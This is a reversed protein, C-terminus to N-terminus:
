YLFVQANMVIYGGSVKHSRIKIEGQSCKVASIYAIDLIMDLEFPHKVEDLTIESYCIVQSTMKDADLTIGGRSVRNHTETIELKSLRPPRPEEKGVPLSLTTEWFHMRGRKGHGSLELKVMYRNRTHEIKAGLVSDDKANWMEDHSSLYVSDRMIKERAEGLAESTDIGEFHCKEILETRHNLARERAEGEYKECQLDCWALTHLTHEKYYSRWESAVIAANAMLIIDGDLYIEIFEYMCRLWFDRWDGDRHKSLSNEMISLQSLAEERSINEVRPLYDKHVTPLTGLLSLGAKSAIERAVSSNDKSAHRNAMSLVYLWEIPYKAKPLEGLAALIRDYDGHKVATDILILAKIDQILPELRKIDPEDCKSEILRYARGGLTFGAGVAKVYLMTQEAAKLDELAVAKKLLYFLAECYRKEDVCTNFLPGILKHIARLDDKEAMAILALSEESGELVTFIDFPCEGLTALRERLLTEKSKRAM